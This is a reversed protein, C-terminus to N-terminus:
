KMPELILANSLSGTRTDIKSRVCGRLDFRRRLHVWLLRILDISYKLSYTTDTWFNSWQSAKGNPLTPFVSHRLLPDIKHRLLRRPLISSHLSMVNQWTVIRDNTMMTHLSSQLNHWQSTRHSSPHTSVNRFQNDLTRYVLLDLKLPKRVPLIFHIMM